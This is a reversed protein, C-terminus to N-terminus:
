KKGKKSNFLGRIFGKVTKKEKPDQHKKLLEWLELYEDRHLYLSGNKDRWYWLSEVGLYQSVVERRAIITERVRQPNKEYPIFSVELEAFYEGENEDWHRFAEEIARRKAILETERESVIKKFRYTTTRKEM